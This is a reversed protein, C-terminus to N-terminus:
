YEHIFWLQRNSYTNLVPLISELVIMAAYLFPKSKIQWYLVKDGLFFITKFALLTQTYTYLYIRIPGRSHRRVRTQRRSQPTRQYHETSSERYLWNTSKGTDVVLVDWSSWFYRCSLYAIYNMISVVILYNRYLCYNVHLSRMQVTVRNLCLCLLCLWLDMVIKSEYVFSIM